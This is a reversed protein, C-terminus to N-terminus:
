CQRHVLASTAASAANALGIGGQVLLAQVGSILGRRHIANGIRQPESVETARHLFPTIEEEMAAIVIVDVHSM